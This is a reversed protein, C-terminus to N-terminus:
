RRHRRGGQKIEQEAAAMARLIIRAMNTCASAPADAEM